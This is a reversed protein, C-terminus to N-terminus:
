LNLGGLLSSAAGQMEQENLKEAKEMAKNVALLILDEAIDKDELIEESINISTIRKNGNVTISVANNQITETVTMTELKNKIEDMQAKLAGMKGFDFM